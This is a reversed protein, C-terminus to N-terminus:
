ENLVYACNEAFSVNRIGQYACTRTSILLYSIKTKRFIKVHLNMLKTKVHRRYIEPYVLIM